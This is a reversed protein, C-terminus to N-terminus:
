ESCHKEYAAADLGFGAAAAPDALKVKIMWGGEFPASNVLSPDSSLEENIEVVEGAVPCYVDSAAKVSEVVGFTEKEELEAGVEPLDVFVVDGLESQAFESIGVTGIEGDVKLWEHSPAYRLGDVVTAYGRVALPMLFTSPATRVRMLTAAQTCFNRLAM